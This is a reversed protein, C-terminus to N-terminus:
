IIYIYIIESCTHKLSFILLWHLELERWHCFEFSLFQPVWNMAFLFRSFISSPTSEYPIEAVIFCDYRPNVRFKVSHKAFQIPPIIMLCTKKKHCGIKGIENLSRCRLKPHVVWGGPPFEARDTPLWIAENGEPLWVHCHSFPPKICYGRTIVLM